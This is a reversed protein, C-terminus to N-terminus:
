PTRRTTAQLRQFAQDMLRALRLPEDVAEPAAGVAIRVTDNVSAFTVNLGAGPPLIPLGLFAVLPAGALYLQEAPGKMNSIVLNASPANGLGPVTDSVAMSGALLLAYVQRSTTQMRRGKAKANTTALNIQRLREGIEAGPVGMAILEASVQNGGGAGPGDRLSMPMFAVLPGDAPSGHEGLYTHLADDIVTMVVDNISTNTEMAVTKVDALPLGTDAYARAASKATNNFLTRQATFPVSAMRPKLHLAQVGFEVIDAGIGIMDTPLKTLGRLQGQLRRAQSARPRPRRVEAGGEPAMWPAALREDDPSDSMFNRMVRLGAEGDILAHHVKIMVALCDNELGDIIYCEWLPRSRDLLGSNLTSVLEYFQAMTGPAPLDVQRVHNAMDPEVNEWAAMGTSAWTLKHTFPKVARSHRYAEFLRPGFSREQGQPKKFITMAAMHFPRNPNELLLFTLDTPSIGSM